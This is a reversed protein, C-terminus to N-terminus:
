RKPIASLIFCLMEIVMNVSHDALPIDYANMRACILNAYRGGGRKVATSLMVNSIDGAITFIGNQALPISASGLGAGLDLVTIDRGFKKAILDGCAEYVGYRETNNADWYKVAPEFNEGINDYGIYKDGGDLQIAPDDCFQYISHVQPIEYGCEPCRFSDLVIKCKPCIFVAKM